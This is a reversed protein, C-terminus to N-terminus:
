KKASHVTTLTSAIMLAEKYVRNKPVGFQQSVERAAVSASVQANLLCHLAKVWDSSEDGAPAESPAPMKVAFCWEGRVGQAALEARVASAAVPAPGEFFREHLKTLEKAAFVRAGPEAQAVFALAEEIREPSEFWVLVRALGLRASERALGLESAREANKRPFFGRFVFATEDFGAASLLTVPASPGPFPTIAVGLERARAVLRGGPDSIGPTGADSVLAFSEGSALRRAVVELKADTAHEDLRELPKSLGLAAMLQSTRRTDECLIAHAQGLAQRARDSLDELNGIPTAVVWLGPPFVQRKITNSVLQIIFRCTRIPSVRISSLASSSV